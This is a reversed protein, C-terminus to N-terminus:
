RTPQRYLGTTKFICANGLKHPRLGLKGIFGGFLEHEEKGPEPSLLAWDIRYKGIDDLLLDFHAEHPRMLVEAKKTFYYAFVACPDGTGLGKWYHFSTILVRDGDRVLRNMVEAAQRSYSAGRWQGADIDRLMTEYDRDVFHLFSLAIIFVAAVIPLISSRHKALDICGSMIIGQLTAWAPLLVIITWAVKSKMASILIYSPLILFLPWLGPLCRSANDFKDNMATLVLVIAGVWALMVGGPGLAIPLQELYYHWSAAFGTETGFGFHFHELFNGSEGAFFLYWWGCTLVPILTLALIGAANWQNRPRTFYLLFAAMAYFVATEKFLFAIGICLGALYTRDTLLCLFALLGFTTVPHDTKIWTDFFAAGPMISILFVSWLAVSPGFLKDNLKFLLLLNILGFGIALYETREAFGTELPHLLTMLVTFLPPHRWFWHSFYDHGGSVFSRVTCLTMAEDWVLLHGVWRVRLAIFIAACIGLFIWHTKRKDPAQRLQDANM